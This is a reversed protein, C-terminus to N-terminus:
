KVKKGQMEQDNLKIIIHTIKGKTDRVFKATANVNTVTFETESQPIFEEKTDGTPQGFLKDGERTIMLTFIPLEYEGVYDDYIKPDIKKATADPQKKEEPKQPETKQPESKQPEPKQPEPKKEQSKVPKYDALWDPDVVEAKRRAKEEILWQGRETWPPGGEPDVHCFTCDKAGYKKAKILFPPYGLAQGALGVVIIAVFVLAIAAKLTRV